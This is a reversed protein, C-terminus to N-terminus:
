DAPRLHVVDGAAVARRHGTPDLLLLRGDPDVDEAIGTIVTGGPLEVRVESGLSSCAARYAARLRTREPDGRRERWEGERAALHSLLAVLVDAREASGGEAALSTAFPQDPPAAAVNIGIGIVVAPPQADAVEALIGAVKRPQAGLLVDNPWKLGATAPCCDRVADLVALGALLPLWGFRSQPVGTPRLLVSVTIGTGPPSVWSRTMRGRGADQHEAVLVTRDPAGATAAALLDANTSGTREVVDLQAWPGVLATRLARADLPQATVNM